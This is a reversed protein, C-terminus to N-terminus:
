NISANCQNVKRCRLRLRRRFQRARKSLRYEHIRVLTAANHAMVAMGTQVIAGRRGKYTLRAAGRCLLSAIISEVVPRSYGCAYALHVQCPTRARPLDGESLLRLVDAPTPSPPLPDITHPIGVTLIGQQHLAERLSADNFAMDGALSHIAPRPYTASRAIAQQVKDVLPQVYSADSPNGVPLHLAFIFGAAPEAIIGPKRGFQAPCNSKGKCIPAITPDYANVIKCHPLAKGQTLRRSQHEIRQHAELATTLQTDLRARQDESLQM